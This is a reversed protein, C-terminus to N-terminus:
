NLRKRKEDESRAFPDIRLKCGRLDLSKLQSLEGGVELITSFKVVVTNGVISLCNIRLMQGTHTLQNSQEVLVDFVNLNPPHSVWSM